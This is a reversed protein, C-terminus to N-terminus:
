SYRRQMPGNVAIIAVALWWGWKRHLFCGICALLMVIALAVAVAVAVAVALFGPGLWVHYPMLLTRRAPRLNWIADMASGPFQLAVGVGALVGAAVAFFDAYRLRRLARACVDTTM